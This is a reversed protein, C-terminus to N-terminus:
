CQQNPPPKYDKLTKILATPQTVPLVDWLWKFTQQRPWDMGSEGLQTRTVTLKQVTVLGVDGAAYWINTRLPVVSRIQHGNLQWLWGVCSVTYSLRAATASKRLRSLQRYSFLQQAIVIVVVPLVDLGCFFLGWCGNNDLLSRSVWAWRSCPRQVTYM